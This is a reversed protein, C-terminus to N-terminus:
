NGQAGNLKNRYKMIEDYAYTYWDAYPYIGQVWAQFPSDGTILSYKDEIDQREYCWEYEQDNIFKVGIKSAIHGREARILYEEGNKIVKVVISNAIDGITSGSYNSTEWTVPQADDKGKLGHAKADTNVMTYQDVGFQEHVEKGDVYLPLTGGAALLKIEVKQSTLKTKTADSFTKTWIVDFVVDNFDFDTNEGVSLDEAIVRLKEIETVPNPTNETKAETLTVIWDSYYGDACGGVKVWERYQKNDVPLYGDRLLGDIVSTNLQKGIYANNNDADYLETYLENDSVTRKTGCYRNTQDSLLKVPEGNYQYVYNTQKVGNIYFDGWITLNKPTGSIFTAPNTNYNWVENENAYCEKDVMQEFDFGMFSRDWGDDLCNAEAGMAQMITTYSVLGTYNTRLVSGNSNIYGFSKTTSNKMYMIKDSHFPGDNANGGNDLVTGNTSCDGHNFNNIHDEFNRAPDVAVLHDMHDSAIIYTSGNAAMYAEPTACGEPVNTHGKYVQQIFYNSWGPDEYGLNPHTQFYKRVVAIQDSTLAPPVKLGGYEKNPDAWENANANESRTGAVDSFGWTHGPAPTGFVKQFAAEYDSYIKQVGVAVMEEESMPTIEKSCSTFAACFAIAAMGTM